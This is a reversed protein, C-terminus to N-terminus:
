GRRQRWGDARLALVGLVTPMAIFLLALMSWVFM